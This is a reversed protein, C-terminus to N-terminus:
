NGYALLAHCSATKPLGTIASNYWRYHSFSNVMLCNETFPQYHFHYTRADTKPM